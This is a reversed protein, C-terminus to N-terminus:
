LRRNYGYTNATSKELTKREEETLNFENGVMKM